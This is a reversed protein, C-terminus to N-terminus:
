IGIQAVPRELERKGLYCPFVVDSWIGADVAIATVTAHNWRL